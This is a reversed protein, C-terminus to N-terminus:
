ASRLAKGNHLVAKYGSRGGVTNGTLARGDFLMGLAEDAVETGLGMGGKTLVGLYLRAPKHYM